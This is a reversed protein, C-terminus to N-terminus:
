AAGGDAPEPTPDQTDPRALVASKALTEYTLRLPDLQAGWTWRTQVWHRAWQGMAPADQAFLTRVAEALAAPEPADALVGAQAPILEPLAGRRSAVVPVGSAMAELVVLGFTECDGAHVFVDASAMLRSLAPGRVYRSRVTVNAQRVQPMGPGVLLLHYAPGLRSFAEILTPLNKEPAARGVFLALRTQVSLGLRAKLAVADAFRPHFRECDVGLGQPQLRPIGVGELRELVYRSPVLVCDFQRYFTQLYRRAPAQLLDGGWRSALSLVDSHYFAVVPVGLRQGAELAAWGPVGPDAAEILDPGADQLAAVWPLRRWPFRYGQSFPLPAAAVYRISGVRRARRAPVVLTHRWGPLAGFTQRKIELYRRVGGSDPAYFFTVDALHVPGRREPRATHGCPM